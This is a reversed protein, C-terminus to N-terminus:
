LVLFHYMHLFGMVFIVCFPLMINTNCHNYSLLKKKKKNRLIAIKQLPCLSVFRKYLITVCQHMSTHYLNICIKLSFM